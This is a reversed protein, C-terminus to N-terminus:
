SRPLADELSQGIFAAARRFAEDTDGRFSFLRDLLLKNDNLDVAEVKAWQVLTSEKHIGGYIVVRAGSRRAAQMFENADMRGASCALEPCILPLVRYRGHAALGDRLLDVFSKVRAAHQASQDLAEASTDYYDFDAVVVPIGAAAREAALPEGGLLLALLLASCVSLMVRQRKM